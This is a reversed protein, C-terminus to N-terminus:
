VFLSSEDKAASELISWMEDTDFDPFLKAFYEKGRRYVAQYPLVRTNGGLDVFDEIDPWGVEIEGAQAPFVFQIGWLSQQPFELTRITPVGWPYDTM